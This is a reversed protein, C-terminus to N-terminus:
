ILRPVLSQLRVVRPRVLDSEPVGALLADPLLLISALVGVLVLDSGATVM